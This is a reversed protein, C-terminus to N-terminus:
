TTLFNLLRKFINGSNGNKVAAEQKEYLNTLETLIISIGKTNEYKFGFCVIENLVNALSKKNYSYLIRTKLISKDNDRETTNNTNM